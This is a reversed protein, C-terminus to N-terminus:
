TTPKKIYIDQRPLKHAHQVDLTVLGSTLGLKKRHDSFNLSVRTMLLWSVHNGCMGCAGREHYFLNFDGDNDTADKM